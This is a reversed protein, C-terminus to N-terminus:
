RCQTSSRSTGARARRRARRTARRPRSLRPSPPAVFPAAWRRRSGAVSPASQARSEGGRGGCRLLASMPSPSAHAGCWGSGLGALRPASRVLVPVAQFGLARLAACLLTNTELGYGGRGSDVLKAEVARPEISVPRGLMLDVNEFPISRAHAAMIGCLTRLQNTSSLDATSPAALQIRRLYAPLNFLYTGPSQADIPM